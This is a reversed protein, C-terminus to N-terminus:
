QILSCVQGSEGTGDTYALAKYTYPLPVVSCVGNKDGVEM